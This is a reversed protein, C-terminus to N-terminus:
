KLLTMKKVETFKGAAIKYFYIGSTLNSGDFVVQYIGPSKIENVLTKIENGLVDYVKLSVFELEPIDFELHTVPNFPNPYNQSLTFKNPLYSNNQNLETWCNSFLVGYIVSPYDSNVSDKNFAFWYKQCNPARLWNNLAIKTQYLPNNSIHLNLFDDSSGYSLIFKLSDSSRLNYAFIYNTLGGSANTIIIDTGVYNVEDYSNNDLMPYSQTNSAYIDVSSNRNTEYINMGSLSYKGFGLYHNKGTFAITDSQNGSYPISDPSGNRFYVATHSESFERDYIVSVAVSNGTIKPNRCIGSDQLTLIREALTEFTLINFKKYKIDVGSEYAIVYDSTSIPHLYPKKNDAISSDIIFSGSWGINYDYTCGFISERGFKNSQWAVVATKIFGNNPYVPANYVIVPNINTFEDNTLYVASDISGEIGIKSVCIQCGSGTVREFVMFEFDTYGDTYNLNTCFSPNRDNNGNTLRIPQSIQSVSTNATLVYFICNILIFKKM